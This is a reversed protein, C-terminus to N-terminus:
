RLGAPARLSPRAAAGALEQEAIRRRAGVDAQDRLEVIRPAEVHREVIIRRQQAGVLIRVLELGEGGRM